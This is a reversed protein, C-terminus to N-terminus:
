NPNVSCLDMELSARRGHQRVKPLYPPCQGTRLHSPEPYPACICICRYPFVCASSLPPHMYGNECKIRMDYPNMGTLEYPVMQLPYTCTHANALTATPTYTLLHIRVLM